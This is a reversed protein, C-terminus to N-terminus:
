TPLTKQLKKMYLHYITQKYYGDCIYCSRSPPGPKEFEFLRSQVRYFQKFFIPMSSLIFLIQHKIGGEYHQSTQCVQTLLCMDLKTITNCINLLTAMANCINALNVIKCDKSRLFPKAVCVFVEMKYHFNDQIPCEVIKELLLSKLKKLLFHSEGIDM